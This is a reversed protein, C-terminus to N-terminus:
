NETQLNETKLRTVCGQQGLGITTCIPLTVPLQLSNQAVWGSERRSAGPHPLSRAIAGGLTPRLLNPTLQPFIEFKNRQLLNPFLASFTPDRVAPQRLRVCGASEGLHIKERLTIIM